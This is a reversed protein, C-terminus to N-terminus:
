NDTGLIDKFISFKWQLRNQFDIFSFEGYKRNTFYDWTYLCSCMVLSSHRAACIQCNTPGHNMTRLRFFNCLYQTKCVHSDM